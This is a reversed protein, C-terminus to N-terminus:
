FSHDQHVSSLSVRVARAEAAPVDLRKGFGPVGRLFRPRDIPAGRGVRAEHRSRELEDDATRMEEPSLLGRVCVFGFARLQELEDADLGTM